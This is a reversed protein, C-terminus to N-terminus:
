CVSGPTCCGGLNSLLMGSEQLLQKKLRFCWNICPALNGIEPHFFLVFRVLYFHLIVWKVWSIWYMRPARSSFASDSVRHVWCWVKEQFFERADGQKWHLTVWVFLLGSWLLEHAKRVSREQSHSSQQLPFTCYKILWCQRTGPSAGARNELPHTDDVDKCPLFCYIWKGEGEFAFNMQFSTVAIGTSMQEWTGGSYLLFIYVWSPVM